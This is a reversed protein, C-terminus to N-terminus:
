FGKSTTTKVHRPRTSTAFVETKIEDRLRRLETLDSQAYQLVKGNIRVQVIRKGSALAVIASQVINLDEQTYM